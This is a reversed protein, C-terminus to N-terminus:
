RSVSSVLQWFLLCEGASLHGPRIDDTASSRKFCTPVAAFARCSRLSTRLGFHLFLPPSPSLNESKGAKFCFGFCHCKRINTEEREAAWGISRLSVNCLSTFRWYFTPALLWTSEYQGTHSRPNGVYNGVTKTSFSFLFSDVPRGSHKLLMKILSPSLINTKFWLLFNSLAKCQNTPSPVRGQSSLAIHQQSEPLRGGNFTLCCRCCYHYFMEKYTGKQAGLSM